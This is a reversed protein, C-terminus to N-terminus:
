KLIPEIGAVMARTGRVVSSPARPDHCLNGVQVISSRRDVAGVMCVTAVGARAMFPIRCTSMRMVLAIYETSAQGDAPGMGLTVGSCFAAAPCGREPSKRSTGREEVRIM